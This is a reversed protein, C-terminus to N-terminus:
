FTSTAVSLSSLRSAAGPSKSSTRSKTLERAEQRIGVLEVGRGVESGPEDLVPEYSGERCEGVLIECSGPAQAFRQACEQQGV